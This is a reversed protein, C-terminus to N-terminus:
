ACGWPRIPQHFSRVPNLVNEIPVQNALECRYIVPLRHRKRQQEEIVIIRRLESHCGAYQERALNLMHLLVRLYRQEEGVWFATSDLLVNDEDLANCFAIIGVKVMSPFPVQRHPALLLRVNVSEKRGPVLEGPEPFSDHDFYFWLLYKCPLVSVGGFGRLCDVKSWM